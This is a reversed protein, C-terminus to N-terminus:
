AQVAATLSVSRPPLDRWRLCRVAHDAAAPELDPPVTRCPGRVEPCRAAFACGQQPARPDPVAGPIAALRAGPLRIRDVHPALDLLARTYPMRPTDYIASVPGSEVVSGGYAVVVRDAIEAVVGLDHTIFLLAMGLDRQLDRLLELIQAQITVDLATTPEDAILLRPGCILAIAIVARQKMGGSLEGPYSDMRQRADPIGVRDLMEIARARAARRGIPEHVLLTETIQQGITFVPDLASMADQFVIAIEKGRLRRMRSEPLDLLNQGGYRIEGSCLRSPPLLGTIAYGTVSKGSGSEGILCLTEGANMTFSVDRVARVLGSRTRFSVRLNEVALLPSIETM